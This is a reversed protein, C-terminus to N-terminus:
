VKYKKSNRMGLILFFIVAIAIILFLPWLSKMQSFVASPKKRDKELSLFVMDQSLKLVDASDLGNYYGRVTYDKDLLVFRPSHDFLTDIGNGDIIGLKMEQIGFNYIEQQDGTLFWWRDHNVGNKDAYAKLVSVSDRKPDITISLLHAISTDIVKRPDTSTMMSQLRKMNKTMAPCISPCHTFFFDVVIVKNKIDHLSVKRGLQNTLAINRVQHWVTDTVIKGREVKQMVTDAYFRKPMSVANDGFQKVLLYSGVPLILVIALAMLAKTSM